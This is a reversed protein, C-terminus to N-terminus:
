LEINKNKDHLYKYLLNRKPQLYTSSEIALKANCRVYFNELKRFFFGFPKLKRWELIYIM